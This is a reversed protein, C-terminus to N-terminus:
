EWEKLSVEGKDIEVYHGIKGIWSGTNFYKRNQGSDYIGFRHTHGFVVVDFGRKLIDEAAEISSRRDFLGVDQKKALISSFALLAKDWVRFLGPAARLLLGFFKTLQIYIEPHYLFFRDYLHGHEIHIRRKGSVVDLFPVVNFIGSDELFGELYIDHNGVIYYIKNSGSNLFGRLAELVDPFVLMLKPFSIQLLDLGDGNICLNVDKGSIHKLFSSFGGGQIFSPNGLHLDSIIYLHEEEVLTNFRGM